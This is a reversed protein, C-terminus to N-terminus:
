VAELFQTASLSNSTSYFFQHSIEFLAERLGSQLSLFLLPLISPTLGILYFIGYKEKKM